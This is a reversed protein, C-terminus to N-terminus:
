VPLCVWGLWRRPEAACVARLLACPWAHLARALRQVDSAHQRARGAGLAAHRVLAGGHFCTMFYLVDGYLQGLSVLLIATYRWPLRQLLAWVTLFFGPGELFATVAEMSIVFDDRTAYRSDAKSYEKGATNACAWSQM